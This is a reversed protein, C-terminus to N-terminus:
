FHAKHRHYNYGYLNCEPHVSGMGGAGEEFGLSGSDTSTPVQTLVCIIAGRDPFHLKRCFGNVMNTPKGRCNNGLHM